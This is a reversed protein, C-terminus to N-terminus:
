GEAAERLGNTVEGHGPRHLPSAALLRTLLGGLRSGALRPPRPTTATARGGVEAFPGTGEVAVYLTAGLAFLDSAPTAPSGYLQEPALYGPTGLVQRAQTHSPSGTMHQAIGYDTLVVRGHPGSGDPALLVNSPKVDRHVIGLHHGAALARVLALGIRAARASPLPGRGSRLREDLAEQLTAAGRVYEMVIWPRGDEEVVDHVTVVHPAERLAALSWAEGFARAIRVESPEEGPGGAPRVLVEKVAVERRLRRDHALWVRGMGGTGLPRRLEYRDALVREARQHEDDSM